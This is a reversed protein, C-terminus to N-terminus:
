NRTDIVIWEKMIQYASYIQLHESGHDQVLLNFRPCSLTQSCSDIIDIRNLKLIALLGKIPHVQRQFNSRCDKGHVKNDKYHKAIKFAHNFQLHYIFLSTCLEKTINRHCYGRITDQISLPAVSYVLFASGDFKQQNENTITNSIVSIDAYAVKITCNERSDFTEVFISAAKTFCKDTDRLLEKGIKNLSKHSGQICDNPTEQGNTVCSVIM